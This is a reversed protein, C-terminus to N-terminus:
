WEHTLMDGKPDVIKVGNDHPPNHSATIMVGIVKKNVAIFVVTKGQNELASVTEELSRIMIKNDNMLKRNGLLVEKRQFM